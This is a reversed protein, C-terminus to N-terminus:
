STFCSDAHPSASQRQGGSAITQVWVLGAETVQLVSIDDSGANPTFGSGARASPWHGRRVGTWRRHWGAPLCPAQALSAVADRAPLVAIANGAPSNTM